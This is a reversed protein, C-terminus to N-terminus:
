DRGSTHSAIVDQIAEDVDIVGAAVSELVWEFGDPLIVGELRANAVAHAAADQPELLQSGYYKVMLERSIERRSRATEALGARTQVWPTEMHTLASLEDGSMKGYREVVESVIALAQPSLRNPDGDPWTTVSSMNRHKQYLFEVVPGNAWAEIPNDFLPIGHKTLSWAQSYYVLKQLKMTQMAPSQSLIAAAVHDVHSESSSEM